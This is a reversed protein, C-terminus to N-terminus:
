LCINTFFYPDIYLDFEFSRIGLNVETNDITIKKLAIKKNNKNKTVNM